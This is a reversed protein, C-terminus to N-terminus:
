PRPRTPPCAASSRVRRRPIPRPFVPASGRRRRLHRGRRWAPGYPNSADRLAALKQPGAPGAYTVALGVGSWLDAHRARHFSRVTQEILSVDAGEVFWLSRGLGQDFVRRAYDALGSPVKGRRVTRRWHFYGEHFGYGDVVLWKLLPSLTDITRAVPLRLRAVAWGIGVHVMYAHDMGPGDLFAPLLPRSWPSLRDRMTLGMAAGEYAFGWDERRVAELRPTLDDLDSAELAAHYGHLFCMGVDELRRWTGFDGGRFGRRALTVERSSIGLMIRRFRGSLTPVYWGVRQGESLENAQM